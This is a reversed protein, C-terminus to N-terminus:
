DSKLKTAIPIIGHRTLNQRLRESGTRLWREYLALIDQDKKHAAESESVEAIVDVLQNFERSLTEYIQTFHADQHKNRMLHSVSSYASSGMSIYYDVDFTKRNFYDQFFGAFYLSLDGLRKFIKVKQHSPAETAKKLIIALPTELINFEFHTQIKNNPDIFECLLNVLYFSVDDELALKQNKVAQKIKENFFEEPRQNWKSQKLAVM